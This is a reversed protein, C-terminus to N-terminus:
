RWSRRRASSRAPARRAPPIRAPLRPGVRLHLASRRGRGSEVGSARLAEARRRLRADGADDDGAALRRARHTELAERRAKGRVTGDLRVCPFAPAEAAERAPRAAAGAAALHGGGAEAPDDVPDPLLGVQRLRDAPRGAPRTGASANDIVQEQEPYLRPIGLRRAAQEIPSLRRARSPPASVTRAGAAAAVGIAPARRAKPRPTAGDASATEASSPTGDNLNRNVDTERPQASDRAAM